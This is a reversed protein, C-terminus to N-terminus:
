SKNEAFVNRYFFIRLKFQLEPAINRCKTVGKFRQGSGDIAQMMQLASGADFKDPWM